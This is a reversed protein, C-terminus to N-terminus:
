QIHSFATKSQMILRAHFNRLPATGKAKTRSYNSAAKEDTEEHVLVLGSTYIHVLKRSM